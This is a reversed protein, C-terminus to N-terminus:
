PVEAEALTGHSLAMGAAASYGLFRRRNLTIPPM